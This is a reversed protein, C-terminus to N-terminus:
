KERPTVRKSRARGAVHRPLAAPYRQQRNPCCEQGTRADICWRLDTRCPRIDALPVVAVDYQAAQMGSAAGLRVHLPFVQLVPNSGYSVDAFWKM